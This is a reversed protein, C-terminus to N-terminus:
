RLLERLAQMDVNNAGYIAGGAAGLKGASRAAEIAKQRQIMATLEGHREWPIAGPESIKTGPTLIGRVGPTGSIENVVRLQNQGPVMRAVGGQVLPNVDPKTGFRPGAVVLARGFADDGFMQDRLIKFPQTIGEGAAAAAGRRGSADWYYSM